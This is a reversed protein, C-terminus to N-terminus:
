KEKNACGCCNECNPTNKNKMSCIKSHPCGICKRGNKKAKIIYFLALGIVVVIISIAIIEDTM